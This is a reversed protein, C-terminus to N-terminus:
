ADKPGELTTTPLMTAWDYMVRLEHVSCPAAKDRWAAMVSVSEATRRGEDPASASEPDGTEIGTLRPRALENARRAALATVLVPGDVM